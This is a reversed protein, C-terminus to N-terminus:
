KSSTPRREVPLQSLSESVPEEERNPSQQHPRSTQCRQIWPVELGLRNCLDIAAAHLSLGNANAWLDLQNGQSGCKFCRYSQKALNVSFVRSPRRQSGHVPCPGRRQDGRSETAGFQLLELVDQMRVAARLASFDIGPM